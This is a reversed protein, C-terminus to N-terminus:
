FYKRLADISLNQFITGYSKKSSRPAFTGTLAHVQGSFTSSQINIIILNHHFCIKLIDLHKAHYQLTERYYLTICLVAQMKGFLYSRVLIIDNSLWHLVALIYPKRVQTEWHSGRSSAASDWIVPTQKCQNKGETGGCVGRLFMSFEVNM